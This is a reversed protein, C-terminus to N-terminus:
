RVTPPDYCGPAVTGFQLYNTCQEFWDGPGWVHQPFVTEFGARSADVPGDLSRDVWGDGVKVPVRARLDAGADIVQEFVEGYGLGQKVLTCDSGVDILGCAGYGEETCAVGSPCGLSREACSWLDIAGRDDMVNMFQARVKGPEIGGLLDLLARNHEIGTPGYLVIQNHSGQAFTVVQAAIIDKNPREVEFLYTGPAVDVAMWVTVFYTHPQGDPDPRQVVLYQGNLKVAPWEMEFDSTTWDRDDFRPVLLRAQENDPTTGSAARVELTRVEISETGCAPALLLLVVLLRANMADERELYGIRQDSACAAHSFM